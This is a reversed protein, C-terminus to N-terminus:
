CDKAGEFESLTKLHEYAQKIFNGGEMDPTFEYRRRFESEEGSFLVDAVVANKSGFVQEVKIYADCLTAALAQGQVLEGWPTVGSLEVDVSITKTLAM